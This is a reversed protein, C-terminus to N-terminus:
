RLLRRIHVAGAYILLYAVTFPAILLEGTLRALKMPKPIRIRSALMARAMRRASNVGDADAM